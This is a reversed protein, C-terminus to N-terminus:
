PGSIKVRDLLASAEAAQRTLRDVLEHHAQHAQRHSTHRYLENEHLGTGLSTDVYYGVLTEWLVPPGQDTFGHDLGLFVTSILYGGVEHQAVNRREWNEQLWRGWRLTDPELVPKNQDDLVYHRM